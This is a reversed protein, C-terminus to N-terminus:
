GRNFEGIGEIVAAVAEREPESLHPNWADMLLIVRTHDSRNWAEHLYTDDFAVCQGERWTHMQGGVQLACDDPVLLPLHVVARVNSVGHHPLIHTGPALVSFCVEPAHGAIRLLPLSELVSATAACRRQNDVHVQGHRYFFVADWRPKSTAAHGATAHLYAGLDTDDDGGLFPVLAEPEALMARAEELIADAANELRQIWEFDEPAFYPASPLGPFYLFKPRQRGDPPAAAVMGLYAHLCREVRQMAERGFRAHLPEMLSALVEARGDRVFEAAHAVQALLRPPTSDPDLWQGDFQARTLARFYARTAGHRDGAQELLRALQLHAVYLSPALAVAYELAQRAEGPFGAAEAAVALCKLLQPNDPEAHCAQQLQSLAERPAGRTMAARAIFLHAEGSHGHLELARRYGAEARPDGANAWARAQLLAADAPANM